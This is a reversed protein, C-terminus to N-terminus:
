LKNRYSCSFSHIRNV